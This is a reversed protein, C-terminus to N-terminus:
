NKRSTAAEPATSGRTTNKVVDRHTNQLHRIVSFVHEGSQASKTSPLGGGRPSSAPKPQLTRKTPPMRFGDPRQTNDRTSGGARATPIHQMTVRRQSANLGTISGGSSDSAVKKGRHTLPFRFNRIKQVKLDQGFGTGGDDEKAEQLPEQNAQRQVLMRNMIEIQQIKTAEQMEEIRGILQVQDILRKTM